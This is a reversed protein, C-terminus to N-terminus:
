QVPRFRPIVFADHSRDFVVEVPDGIRLRSPDCDVLDSLVRASPHEDLEIWAVAYPTKQKYAAISTQHVVVFSYVVGKGAVKDWYLDVSTCNSCVTGPFHLYVGCTRCRQLRLEGNRCAEWYAETMKDPSPLPPTTPNM